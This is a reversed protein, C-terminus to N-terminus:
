VQLGTYALLEKKEKQTLKVCALIGNKFTERFDAERISSFCAIEYKRGNKEIHKDWSDIIPQKDETTMAINHM